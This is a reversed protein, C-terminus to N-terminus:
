GALSLQDIAQSSPGSAVTVTAGAATLSPRAPTGFLATALGGPRGDGDGDLQNGSADAMLSGAVTLRYPQNKGFAARPTLTVQGTAPDYTASKLRVQVDDRTDFRRDRGASVLRYAGLNTAGAAGVPESFGVVVKTFTQRRVSPVVSVVRPPTTDVVRVAFSQSGVAGERDTVSVTVRYTGLAPYAHDLRFSRDANFALPQPGTGDGYDVTVTCPDLGADAFAGGWAGAAGQSLVTDTTLGGVIPAVNLIHITAVQWDTLRPTGGDTAAVTVQVTSGAADNAVWHVVGTTPDITMGAPADAGLSYTLDNHTLNPDTGLTQFTIESGESVTLEGIPSLSPARNVELVDVAFSQTGSLAPSGSDTARITIWFRAMADWENPTWSFLGTTADISAGSPVGGEFDFTLRETPGDGDTATALLEIRQGVSATQNPIAAVVPADPVSTVTLRVTALASQSVGDSVRYTFTDLGFVNASPTYVFSGDAGVSLSGRTPGSVLVVTLLDGDRDAAGALLGTAAGAVISVDEDTTLSRDAVTPVDNIPRVTLTVSAVSSVLRGDSVTYTFSDAGNYDAAPIYAFSGDARLTLLGHSPGGVLSVTLGDGDVDGAGVLLGSVAAVSLSTDEDTAWQHAVATPADNVPRVTLSVTAAAGNATGDYAAFTFADAGFYNAAPTYMFSGDAQLTLSGHSPGTVVVATLSDGDRDNAGQLLGTAAGVTLTADEDLSFSRSVVTPLDNVANVTLSVTAAGSWLRGDTVRYTFSDPGHYDAAPTYVFSGDSRATLTGHTPLTLVSATLADGDVDVAGVLLGSGATVNLATDEDVAWQHALATPADNVPRVTLSVTAAAGNATGDYATFTFADAGFYNAAPTYVFSGDAQLTLSGHSPGTVVVATLSDGDRDNAGQLLGTAAGVTLTADEDLSFSRSVVTPLDNVPNVTLVFTRTLVGGAGDDVQVTITATGFRDAAPTITLTRNAGSGSLVLGAAPILDTNSSVATVVLSGPATADDGVSLAIPALATDENTTATAPLGVLTPRWNGAFGPSGGHEVSARWNAPDNLNGLPDIVTLSSGGGDPETPWGDPGSDDYTFDRIVAGHRDVLTIREGGNSLNGDYPGVVNPLDGYRSRFAAVNKVLLLYAGPALYSASSAPFTFTIGRTFSAGSLDIERGSTNLLELFEFEEKDVVLEAGTPAHPNYELETLALNAASAADSIRFTAQALASWDGALWTRAAITTSADLTLPPAGSAESELELDFGLDSSAPDSQHVEVALLNTGQVLLTPDITFELFSTEGTGGIASLALTTSTIDGEPLNSRAVEVGNLYVVAGDDRRLRLTLGTLGAISAVDFTRRFYTTVYKNSANPGYGIVTAEDGDGYGLKAPGSAWGADSYAADRWATGADTGTDLYKWTSGAAVLTQNALMPDYVLASPRISGDILRPDTGDLTYYVLGSTALPRLASGAPVQGGTSPVGNVVFWPADTDPYLGADRLQQLVIATRYPLYNNLIQDVAARWDAPTYPTSVMSDGWRISEGLIAPAVEAARAELRARAAEPTLAGGDFFHKRVHDAFRLRYQENQMLQQHLWQPNSYPFQDGAPYPGLRNENVDLLTHEGDHSMFVFGSRGTRDRIAYFNNPVENGLFSSLPADLNGAYFVTIMYDILNDVDLLNEYAPNDSGDTNKGQIKWYDADSAFGIMSANWLRQWADLTGDTASITYPGSEVKVVDYNDEEGGLYTEAFAAEAREQTQYLGWYQGDLYLHYYRSRTYPQGMDRQTDRSFIDRLFTYRSDGGASWSYNQATRLDVKEFVDAGEDGFLPFNLDGEYEDRFFLRFAHKPNWSGRSYGGRIRLGANIDFGASGDPNILEVTAPREWDRGQGSANAYIGTTPDFLNELDTTVSITPISTLAEMVADAGFANLIDPDMGYDVANAGWSAPWGAPTQGEPSQTVIDTLFLYTNTESPAELYGSRLAVARLTSTATIRLPGVYAIGTTPTPLSGDLTYYITAGATATTLSVDFPADYFGRPVSATVSGVLGLYAESNMEGPTPTAYFRSEGTPVDVGVVEPLVLFDADTATRNLAQISLVNMGPQLLGRYASLGITEPTLIEDGTRAVSAAANWSLAGPANRRAVEVGNLYAVFGDDYRMQLWLSDYSAPDDVEFPIRVYATSNVGRMATALDTAVIPTNGDEGGHEVGLGGHATDGVLRMSGDFGGYSGPAAFLEVGAGGGAEYYVLRASWLGAEPITVAGITDDPGRPSAYSISIPAFGDRELILEFGDDSNVGFSWTGATPITILGRADIVFNDVDDNVSQTPFAVDDGFHASSGANVYNISEATATATRKQLAPQDIVDYAASLSGVSGTSEYYRVLFGPQTVGFGLGTPGNSWGSGPVFGADRWTTGLSGDTPVLVSATDGAGVLPTSTVLHGYSVNSRQAPFSEGFDDAVSGDPRVLGLYEGSASLSFNTHLESGAVHRDKSSAWVLLYGGAGIMQGAPFVWKDLDSAKDTLSWGGLDIASETTNYLELWDSSDGDADKLGGSNSALFESIIVSTAGDLLTRPELWELRSRTRGTSASRVGRCM